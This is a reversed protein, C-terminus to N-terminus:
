NRFSRLSLFEWAAVLVLVASVAIGLVLPDFYHAAFGVLGAALGAVNAALSVSQAALM